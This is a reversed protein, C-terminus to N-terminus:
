GSQWKGGPVNGPSRIFTGNIKWSTPQSGTDKMWLRPNTYPAREEEMYRIDRGIICQNASVTKREGMM